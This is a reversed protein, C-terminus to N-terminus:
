GSTFGTDMVQQRLEVAKKLVEARQSTPLLEAPVQKFAFEMTAPVDLKRIDLHLVAITQADFFPTLEDLSTQVSAPQQGWASAPLLALALLLAKRCDFIMSRRWAFYSELAAHLSLNNRRTPPLSTTFRTVSTRM